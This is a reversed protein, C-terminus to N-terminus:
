ILQSLRLAETDFEPALTAIQVPMNTEMSQNAAIGILVSAAGQEHGASRGWNDTPPNKVFIQEQIRIDGGGHSGEGKPVEVVQRNQFLPTVILEEFGKDQEQEEALEDDSQGLVVHSGGFHAYEIRGKDGHFIVRMGEVPSYANLSYNLTMGGRYKVIVSMTDEITIGKRFVNKDRIYGTEEEADLYMGKSVEHDRLDLRFPDNESDTDTYRDYRTYAEDGRKLANEQGYFVLDGTAYVESPVKDTWWNVLDFHHTSKHVLLGGSKDKESHWRRFYDAGHSTNLAYEMQVHRVEGIVGSAVVEKVKTNNPMWRYNFTVRLEKGTDQVAKLIRRCKAADTTMPKETSVNFGAHMARSIYEDHTHDPTCVILEDPNQETLMKEFDEARYMPIDPCDTELQMRKLRLKMRVESADCMGVLVTSDSFNRYISHTFTGSRAGTGIIAIRKKAMLLFKM